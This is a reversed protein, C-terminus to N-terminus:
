DWMTMGEEVWRHIYYRSQKWAKGGGCSCIEFCAEITNGIYWATAGWEGVVWLVKIDDMYHIEIDDRIGKTNVGFDDLCLVKDYEVLEQYLSYREHVDNESYHKVIDADTLLGFHEKLYYPYDNTETREVRLQDLVEAEIDEFDEVGYDLVPDILGVRILQDHVYDYDETREAERQIEDIFEEEYSQFYISQDEGDDCDYDTIVGNPLYPDPLEGNKKKTVKLRLEKEWYENYEKVRNENTCLFNTFEAIIMTPEYIETCKQKGYCNPHLKDFMHYAAFENPAFLYVTNTINYREKPYGVKKESDSFQIEFLKYM